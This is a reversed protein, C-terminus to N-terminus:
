NCEIANLQMSKPIVGEKTDKVLLHIHNSTAIFNLICLCYRNKAEFLWHIWNIRDKAFKLLGGKKHCRHTIHWIHGPLFHRHARAM